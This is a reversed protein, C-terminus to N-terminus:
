VFYAGKSNVYYTGYRASKIQRANIVETKYDGSLLLQINGAKKINLNEDKIGNIIACWRIFMGDRFILDGVKPHWNKIDGYELLDVEINNMM